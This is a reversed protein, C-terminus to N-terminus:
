EAPIPLPDPEAAERRTRKLWWMRIGTITFLLPLFGSVFVLVKYLFGFGLGSHIQRQWLVFREGAAYTRPDDIYNIRRAGSDVTVLITPAGVGYESPAFTLVMLDGARLPPQVSLPNANPLRTKILAVAEDM